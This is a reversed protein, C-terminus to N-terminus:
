APVSFSQIQSSDKRKMIEMTREVYTASPPVNQVVTALYGCFYPKHLILSNKGQEDIGKSLELKVFIKLNENRDSNVDPRTWLITKM